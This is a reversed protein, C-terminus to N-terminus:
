KLSNSKKHMKRLFRRLYKILNDRSTQKKIGRYRMKTGKIYKKPNKLFKDLTEEDWVITSNRMAKSYRYGKVTGVKQGFIGGLAPGMRNKTLSHCSKCKNFVKKGKSVDGAIATSSIVLVSLFVLLRIITHM